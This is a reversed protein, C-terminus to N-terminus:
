QKRYIASFVLRLIQSFIWIDPARFDENCTCHLHDAAPNVILHIRSREKGNLQLAM